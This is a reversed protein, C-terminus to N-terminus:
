PTRPNKENEYKKISSTSICLKKALNEQTLKAETRLEILKERLTM